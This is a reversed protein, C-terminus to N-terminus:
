NFLELREYDQPAPKIEPVGTKGFMGAKALKTKNNLALDPIAELAKKINALAKQLDAPNKACSLRVYGASGEIGFGSGPVLAVGAAYLLYSVIDCDNRFITTKLKTQL